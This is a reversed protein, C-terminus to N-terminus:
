RIRDAKLADPLYETVSKKHRHWEAREFMMWFARKKSFLPGNRGWM